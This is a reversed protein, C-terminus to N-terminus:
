DGGLIDLIGFRSAQWAPYVGAALGLLASGVLVGLVLFPDYTYPFIGLAYIVTVLALAAIVGLVGGVVSLLGSEFLFQMIIDHRRAGVARRVGIELRRARVLLIMISLIGLGGVAFSVFSTILGLTGVLDLAQTQLKMTDKASIVTFDDGSGPLISHRQRLIATASDKAAEPDSGKALQIYAGTIYDRNSMRRLFTSIPVYVLEDQDTGVIDAGKPEMVGVVRCMARFFFVKRGIAEEASGFLRAAIKDGLVCVMAKDALEQQNFFRGAQPSVARVQTYAPTTAMLISMIKTGGSRVAMNEMTFPTGAVVSPMQQILARADSVKFTTPFSTARAKGSRRFRIGGARAMMLNPGLKETEVEAKRVMAQSVHQVGTLALAGLFVGLMALVTRLKHTRLSAIAISLGFHM